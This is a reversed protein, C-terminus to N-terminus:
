SHLEQDPEQRNECTEAIRKLGSGIGTEVLGQSGAQGDQGNIGDGQASQDAEEGKKRSVACGGSLREHGSELMNGPPCPGSAQAVQHEDDGSGQCGLLGTRGGERDDGQGAGDAQGQKEVMEAKKAQFLM